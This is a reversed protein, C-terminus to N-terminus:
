DFLLGAPVLGTRGLASLQALNFRPRLVTNSSQALKILGATDLEGLQSVFRQAMSFRYATNTSFASWHQVEALVTKVFSRAPNEALALLSAHHTIMGGLPAMRRGAREQAVQQLEEEQVQLSFLTTARTELLENISSEDLSSILLAEESSLHMVENLDSGRGQWQLHRVAQIYSWNLEMIRKSEKCHTTSITM